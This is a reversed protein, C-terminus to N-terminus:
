LAACVNMLSGVGSCLRTAVFYLVRPFEDVRPQAITSAILVM